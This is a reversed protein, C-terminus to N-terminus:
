FQTFDATVQQHEEVMRGFQLLSVLLLQLQLSQSIDMSPELGPFLLEWLFKVRFFPLQRLYKDHLLYAGPFM